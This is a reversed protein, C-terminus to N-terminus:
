PRSRSSSSATRRVGSNPNKKPRSGIEQALGPSAAVPIADVDAGRWRDFITALIPDFTAALGLKPNCIWQLELGDMLGFLGRIEREMEEDTMQRVDGRACAVALQRMAIALIRDYRAAVWARAPHNPDSAEGCITLYLEILGPHEEHYRMMDAHQQFWALGDTGHLLLDDTDQGWKDLVATLLEEKSGFHRLLGPVTVGVEDAIERLSSGAYGRRAFAATAAELIQRRRIVGARYPGRPKVSPAM